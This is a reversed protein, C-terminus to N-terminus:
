MFLSFNTFCGMGSSTDRSLNQKLIRIVFVVVVQIFKLKSSLVELALDDFSTFYSVRISSCYYIKVVLSSIEENLRLLMVVYRCSNSATRNSQCLVYVRGFGVRRIIKKFELALIAGNVFLFYLFKLVVILRFVIAVAIKLLQQFNPLLIWFKQRIDDLM